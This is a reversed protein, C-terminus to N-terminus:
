VRINVLHRWALYGLQRCFDIGHRNDKLDATM